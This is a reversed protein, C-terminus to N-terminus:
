KLTYEIDGIEDTRRVIVGRKILNTLIDQNPHGFSNKGVSIIAEKPRVTDLLERSTSNKSGHHGVMLIDVEDVLIKRWVLKQEVEIPVDGMLLASFGAIKMLGVVSGYNSEAGEEAWIVRFSFFDNELVDGQRIIKTQDFLSNKNSSYLNDIQYYDVVKALSGYHDNDWHSIVVVEIKKDWFPMNGSLCSLFKGNDPGVDYVFQFQRWSFVVGSGQGVDCFVLKARNYKILGICFLVALGIASAIIFIKIKTKDMNEKGVM